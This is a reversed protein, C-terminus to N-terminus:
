PRPEFLEVCNGSPDEVLIQRGGPGALIDNRFVVGATRLRAVLAPLDQVELVFRGWGGPVPQRGDPMPKAASAMPGALWLTLDDRALIAMAPGFQQQLTFGLHETYFAIAAPVDQVLYRVAAM